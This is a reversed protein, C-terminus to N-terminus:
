NCEKEIVVRTEVFTDKALRLISIAIILFVHLWQFIIYYLITGM